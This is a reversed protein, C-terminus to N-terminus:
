EFAYTSILIGKIQNRQNTKSYCMNLLFCTLTYPTTIAPVFFNRIYYSVPLLRWVSPVFADSHLGNHLFTERM